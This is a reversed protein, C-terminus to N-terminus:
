SVRNPHRHQCTDYQQRRTRPSRHL